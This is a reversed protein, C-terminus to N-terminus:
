RRTPSWASAAVSLHQREHPAVKNAIVFGGLSEALMVHLAEHTYVHWLQTSLQVAASSGKCAHM